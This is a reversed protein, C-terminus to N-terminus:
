VSGYYKLYRNRCFTSYDGHREFDSYDIASVDARFQVLLPNNELMLVATAAEATNLRDLLGAFHVAWVEGPQPDYGHPAFLNIIGISGGDFEYVAAVKDGEVSAIRVPLLMHSVCWTPIHLVKKYAGSLGDAVVQNWHFTCAFHRVVHRRDIVCSQEGVPAQWIVFDGLRRFVTNANPKFISLVAAYDVTEGVPTVQLLDFIAREEDGSVPCGCTLLTRFVLDLAGRDIRLDM